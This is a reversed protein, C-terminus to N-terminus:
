FFDPNGRIWCKKDFDYTFVHQHPKAHVDPRGHDTWHIESLPVEQGNAEPWSYGNFTASQRYIEGTESSVKGGLVTHPRGQAVPDPLPIDQGNVVQKGLPIPNGNVDRPIYLYKTGGSGKASNLSKLAAPM